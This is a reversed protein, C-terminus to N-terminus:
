ADFVDLAQALHMEAASPSDDAVCEAMLRHALGEVYRDGTAQSTKLVQDILPLAVSHDGRQIYGEALRLAPVVRVYQLHSKDFWLVAEILDGIGAEIEGSKIRGYGRVTKAFAM